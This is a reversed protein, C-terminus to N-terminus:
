RSVASSADNGRTFLKRNARLAKQDMDFNVIKALEDDLRPSFDSVLCNLHSAFAMAAKLNLMVEGNLCQRVYSQNGLNFATGFEAQTLKRNINWIALLYKSEQKHEESPTQRKM